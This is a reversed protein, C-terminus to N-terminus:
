REKDMMIQQFPSLEINMQQRVQNIYMELELVRKNLSNTMERQSKILELIDDLDRNTTYTM